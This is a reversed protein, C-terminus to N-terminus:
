SFVNITLLMSWNKLKCLMRQNQFKALGLEGVPLMLSEFSPFLQKIPNNGSILRAQSVAPLAKIEPTEFIVPIKGM